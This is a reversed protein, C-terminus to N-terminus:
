GEEGESSSSFSTTNFFGESKSEVVCKPCSVSHTHARMPMKDVSPGDSKVFQQQDLQIQQRAQIIGGLTNWLIIMQDLEAIKVGKDVRQVINTFSNPHYMGDSGKKVMKKLKIFM